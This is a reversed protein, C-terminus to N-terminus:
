QVRKFWETVTNSRGESIEVRTEVKLRAGELSYTTTVPRASPRANPIVLTDAFWTPATPLQPGGAGFGVPRWREPSVRYVVTQYFRGNFSLIPDLKEDPMTMTVTLRDSRQEITLRGDGPLPALGVSFFRDTRDPDSPEWVGALTPLPSATPAQASLAAPICLVIASLVRM